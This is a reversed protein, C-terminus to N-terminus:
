VVFVPYSFPTEKATWAIRDQRQSEDFTKDVVDRDRVGLPYVRAEGTVKRSWEPKLPIWM